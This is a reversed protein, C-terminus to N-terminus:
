CILSLAANVINLAVPWFLAGTGIGLLLATTLRLIPKDYDLTEVYAQYLGATQDTWNTCDKTLSAAAKNRDELFTRKKQPYVVNDNIKEVRTNAMGRQGDFFKWDTLMKMRGVIDYIEGGRSLQSPVALAFVLWGVLYVISGIFLRTMPPYPIHYRELLPAVNALFLASISLAMVAKSVFSGRWDALTRWTLRDLARLIISRTQGQGTSTM